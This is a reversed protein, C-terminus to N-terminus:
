WDSPVSADALPDHECFYGAQKDDDDDNNNSM